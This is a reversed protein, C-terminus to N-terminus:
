LCRIGKCVTSYDFFKNVVLFPITTSIRGKGTGDLDLLIRIDTEATKREIKAKRAM